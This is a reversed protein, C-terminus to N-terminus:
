QRNSVASMARMQVGTSVDDGRHDPVEALERRFRLRRISRRKQQLAIGRGLARDIGVVAPLANAVIGVLGQM